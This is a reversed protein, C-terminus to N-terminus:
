RRMAPSATWTLLGHEGAKRRVVRDVLRRAYSRRYEVTASFLLHRADRGGLVNVLRRLQGAWLRSGIQGRTACVPNIRVSARRLVIRTPCAAPAVMRQDDRGHTQPISSATTCKKARNYFAVAEKSARESQKSIDAGSVFAKGGAGTLM